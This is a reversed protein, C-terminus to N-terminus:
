QKRFIREEDDRYQRKPEENLLSKVELINEVKATFIKMNENM